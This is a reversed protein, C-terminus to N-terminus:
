QQPMKDIFGTVSQLRDGAIVAFDTGKIPAEVGAPGLDWSFRVHDGYGDAPGNLTFRFGPFQAQAAGIMADIGEQGAGQMLPDVYSADETYTQAILERRAAPDAENWIAIYREALTTYTSM